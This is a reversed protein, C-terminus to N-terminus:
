KMREVAFKTTDTSKMKKRVAFKTRDTSKM